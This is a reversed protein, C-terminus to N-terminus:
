RIVSFVECLWVLSVVLFALLKDGRYFEILFFIMGVLGPVFVVNETLHMTVLRSVSQHSQVHQQLQQTFELMRSQTERLTFSVLTTTVFFLFTTKFVVTLKSLLSQQYYQYFHYYYAISSSDPPLKYDNMKQAFTMRQQQQQHQGLDIMEDSRPNYLYGNLTSKSSPQLLSLQEQQRMMVHYHFGVVWNIMVTDPGLVWQVLRQLFPEGFCHSDTLAVAVRQVTVNTQQQVRRSGSPDNNHNNNNNNNNNM